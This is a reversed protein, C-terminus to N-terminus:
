CSACTWANSTWSATAGAEDTYLSPTSWFGQGDSESWSGQTDFGADGNDVIVNYVGGPSWDYNAQLSYLLSDILDDMFRTTFPVDLEYGTAGDLGIGSNKTYNVELQFADLGNSCIGCPKM